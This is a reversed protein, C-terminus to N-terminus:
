LTAPMRLWVRSVMSAKSPRYGQYSIRASHSRRSSHSPPSLPPCSASDLAGLGPRHRPPAAPATAM